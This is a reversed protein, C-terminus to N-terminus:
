CTPGVPPSVQIEAREKVNPRDLPGPFTEQSPMTPYYKRNVMTIELMNPVLAGGLVRAGCANNAHLHVVDFLGSLRSWVAELAATHGSAVAGAVDHFEAVLFRLKGLAAEPCSLIAPYEGGEIDMKLAPGGGESANELIEGLSVKNHSPDSASAVWRQIWRIKPHAQPLSSITPDYAEVQIGSKAFALDFSNDPGIGLSFLMSVNKWDAPVVYGGDAEGGVRAKGNQGLGRIRLCQWLKLWRDFVLPSWALPGDAACVSEEIRKVKGKLHELDERALKVLHRTRYIKEKLKGFM